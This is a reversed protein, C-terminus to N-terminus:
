SPSAHLEAHSLIPHPHFLGANTGPRGIPTPVPTALLSGLLAIEDTMTCKTCDSQRSCRGSTFGYKM